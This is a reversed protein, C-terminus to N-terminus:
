RISLMLANFALLFQYVVIVTVTVAVLSRLSGGLITSGGPSCLPNATQHHSDPDGSIDWSGIV